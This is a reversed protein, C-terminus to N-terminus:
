ALSRFRVMEHLLISTAVSVNLSDVLDVDCAMPIAAMADCVAAAAGTVGRGENGVVLVAGQWGGARLREGLTLSPWTPPPAGRRVMLGAGRLRRPSAELRARGHDAKQMSEKGQILRAQDHLSSAAAPRASLDTENGDDDEEGRGAGSGIIAFGRRRLHRLASSLDDCRYLPALDLAGASVAAVAPSLRACGPSLLVARCGLAVASRLCAGVNHPDQVDELALVVPLAAPTAPPVASMITTNEDSAHPSIGAASGGGRRRRSNEEEGNEEGNQRTTEVERADALLQTEAASRVSMWRAVDKLQFRPPRLPGCELVIGQHRADASALMHELEKRTANRVELGQAAAEAALQRIKGGRSGSNKGRQQPPLHVHLAACDRKHAALVSRVAHIGYVAESPRTRGAM